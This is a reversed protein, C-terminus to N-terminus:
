AGFFTNEVVESIAHLATMHMEQVHSTETHAAIFCLDSIKSLEGMKAGTFGIVRIGMERAQKVAALVNPSSGSTSIAILIDGARGLAEVQRSFIRDFDYDNAVATMISTDTTLAIAPLGRRNIKFRGVFEAAIHQSDAASGGNGCFLIKGGSKLCKNFERAIQTLLDIQAATFTKDFADRHRNLISQFDDQM